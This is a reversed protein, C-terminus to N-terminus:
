ADPEHGGAAEILARLERFLARFNRPLKEGALESKANRALRRLQQLDAAPYQRALDTFATEDEILRARWREALHHRATSNLQARELRSFKAELPALDAERMLRGIYQMQRRRAEFKTLKKAELVAGLLSEPLAFAALQDANLAVLKEGARQLEQMARKRQTKSPPNKEDM